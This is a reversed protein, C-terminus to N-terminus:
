ATRTRPRISERRSPALVTEGSPIMGEIHPVHEFDSEVVDADLRVNRGLRLGPPIRVRKGVVSIGTSLNRAEMRNPTLDDGYGVTAGHGVVVEKDLIANDIIANRGVISDTMIISDRIVAGEGVFVGPSLVSHEVRGLVHCGHSIL